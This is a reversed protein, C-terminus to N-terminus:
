LCILIKLTCLPPLPRLIKSWLGTLSWVPLKKQFMWNFNGKLTRLYGNKKILSNLLEHSTNCPIQLRFKSNCECDAALQNM